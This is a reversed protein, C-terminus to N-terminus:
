MYSLVRSVLSESFSGDGSFVSLCLGIIINYAFFVKHYQVLIAYM